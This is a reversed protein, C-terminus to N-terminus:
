SWVLFLTNRLRSISSIFRVSTSSTKSSITQLSPSILRSLHFSSPSISINIKSTFLHLSPHPSAIPIFYHHIYLNTGSPHIYQHPNLIISINQFAATIICHPYLNSGSAFIHQHPVLIIKSRLKLSNSQWFFIICCLYQRLGLPFIHPHPCPHDEYKSSFLTLIDLCCRKDILVFNRFLISNLITKFFKQLDVPCDLTSSIFGHVFFLKFSISASTAATSHICAHCLSRHM